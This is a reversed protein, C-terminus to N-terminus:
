FFSFRLCVVVQLFIFILIDVLPPGTEVNLKVPPVAQGRAGRDIVGSHATLPTHISVMADM